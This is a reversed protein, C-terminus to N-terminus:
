DRINYMEDAEDGFGVFAVGEVESEALEDGDIGGVVIHLGLGDIYMNVDWFVEEERIECVGVAAGNVLEGIDFVVVVESGVLGRRSDVYVIERVAGVEDARVYELLKSSYVEVIINVEQALQM